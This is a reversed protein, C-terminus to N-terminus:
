YMHTKLNGLIFTRATEISSGLVMAWDAFGAWIM